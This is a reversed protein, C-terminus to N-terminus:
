QDLGPVVVHLAQAALVYLVVGPAVAGEDHIAQLGVSYELAADETHQAMPYQAAGDVRNQLAHGGPVQLLTVPAFERECHEGHGAPVHDPAEPREEWDSQM